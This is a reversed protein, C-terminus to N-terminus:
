LGPPRLPGVLTSEMDLPLGILAKQVGNMSASNEWPTYWPGNGVELAAMDSTAEVVLQGRQGGALRQWIAVRLDGYFTDRCLPTLGENNSPALLVTGGDRTTAELEVEHDDNYASMVWSGWPSIKWRVEGHWPVFEYFKGLYHIGIMAVEETANPVIPLGRKGGGATLAMHGTVGEFVNCQVWFWKQPFSGGWNKECYSPADVFDFREDGWQIWGTSVGGAMCIQWHPEFVPFAGLWGATSKQPGAVDGWGFVPRTSYKWSCTPVVKGGPSQCLYGERPGMIQAGVGPFRKGEWPAAKFKSSGEDEASYMWAFSERADPLSVRFYWGEFFRRNSGDYHYSSSGPTAQLFKGTMVSAM